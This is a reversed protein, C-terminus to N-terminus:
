VRVARRLCALTAGPDPPDARGAVYGDPRVLVLAGDDGAGYRRAVRRGPDLVVTAGDIPDAPGPAGRRARARRRGGAARGVAAAADRAGPALHVATHAGSGLLGHM